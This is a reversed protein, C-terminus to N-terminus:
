KKKPVFAHLMVVEIDAIDSLAEVLADAEAQSTCYIRIFQSSVGTKPDVCCSCVHNIVIEGSFSLGEVRRWIDLQYQNAESWPTICLSEKFEMSVKWYSHIEINPM